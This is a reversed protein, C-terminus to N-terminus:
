IKIVGYNCCVGDIVADCILITLLLICKDIVVDGILIISYIMVANIYPILLVNPLSHGHILQFVNCM